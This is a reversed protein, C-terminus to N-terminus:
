EKIAQQEPFYEKKTRYVTGRFFAVAESQQNLVQAEYFAVRDGDQLENATATLVDGVRVPAPYSIYNDISVSVRGRSNAAFAFASDALSFAIGGHVVDFGNVMESRVTMRVVSRGLTAELVEIGLWRSFADREMMRDVVRRALANSAAEKNM